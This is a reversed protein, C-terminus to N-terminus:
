TRVPDLPPLDGDAAFALRNPANGADRSSLARLSQNPYLTLPGLTRGVTNVLLM